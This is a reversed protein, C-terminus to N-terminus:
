CRMLCSASRQMSPWYAARLHDCQMVLGATFMAFLRRVLVFIQASKSTQGYGVMHEHQM